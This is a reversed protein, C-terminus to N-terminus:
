VFGFVQLLGDPAHCPVYVRSALCQTLLAFVGGADEIRLQRLERALGSLKEIQRELNLLFFEAFQLLLGVVSGRWSLRGAAVAAGNFLALANTTAEYM